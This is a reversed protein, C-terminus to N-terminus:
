TIYTIATVILHDHTAGCTRNVRTAINVDDGLVHISDREHETIYLDCKMIAYDANYMLIPQLRMHARRPAPVKYRENLIILSGFGSASHTQLTASSSGECTLLLANQTIAVSISQDTDVLIM